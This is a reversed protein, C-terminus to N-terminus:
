VGFNPQPSRGFSMRHHGIAAESIGAESPSPHFVGSAKELMWRVQSARAFDSSAFEMM